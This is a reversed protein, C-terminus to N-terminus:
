DGNNIIKLKKEIKELLLEKTAEVDKDVVIKAFGKHGKGQLEKSLDIASINSITYLWAETQNLELQYFIVAAQAQPTTLILDKVMEEFDQPLGELEEHKLFSTIINGRKKLRSLVKGWNKLTNINKTRYMAEIINERDAGQIILQSALELTAPTVRASQFSNTAAIMGALLCTAIEKNLHKQLVHYSIEALSTASSEVINLEGFNENLVSNDINVVPVQHFFHRHEAYVEGLAELSNAGLSIVLDYKYDGQETKVDSAKFFGNDPVINIELQDGNVDYSLQKVKTQAVDVVIKFKSLNGLEKITEVKSPLFNFHPVKGSLALDVQKKQKTLFLWWAMATSVEDVSPNESGTLLVRNAASLLKSLQALPLEM